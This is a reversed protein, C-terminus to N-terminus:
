AENPSGASSTVSTNVIIEDYQGGYKEELLKKYQKQTDADQVAETIQDLRKNLKGECATMKNKLTSKEKDEDQTVLLESADDSFTDYTDDTQAGEEDDSTEFLKKMGEKFKNWFDKGVTTATKFTAIVGSVFEQHKELSEYYSAEWESSISDFYSDVAEFLMTPLAYLFFIVLVLFFATFVIAAKAALSLLQGDKAVTVAAGAVNGAAAQAAAKSAARAGRAADAGVRMAGDLSSSTSENKESEAVFIVESQSIGDKKRRM